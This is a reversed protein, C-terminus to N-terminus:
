RATAAPSALRHVTSASATAAVATSVVFPGYEPDAAGVLGVTAVVVWVLAAVAICAEAVALGRGPRDWRPGLLTAGVLMCHVVLGAAIGGVVAATGGVGILVITLVAALAFEAVAGLGALVGALHRVTERLHQRAVHALDTPVSRWLRWASGGHSLFDEALAMQDAGHRERHAPPALRWIQRYIVVHARVRRPRM